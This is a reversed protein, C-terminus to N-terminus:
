AFPRVLVAMRARDIKAAKEANDLVAKLAASQGDKAIVFVPGFALREEKTGEDIEKETPVEVIAIEFLPM